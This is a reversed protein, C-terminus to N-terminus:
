EVTPKLDSAAIGQHLPEAVDQAAIIEFRAAM